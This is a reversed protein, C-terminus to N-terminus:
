DLVITFQTKNNNIAIVADSYKPPGMKGKAGNSSGSAETPMGVFNTNFKGDSNEDHHVAIAYNGSTIGEIKIQMKGKTASANVCRVALNIKEPFGTEKNFICVKIVGKNSKVNNVLVTIDVTQSQATLISCLSFALFIVKKM